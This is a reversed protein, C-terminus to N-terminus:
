KILNNAIVDNAEPQGPSSEMYIAKYCKILNDRISGEEDTGSPDKDWIRHVM